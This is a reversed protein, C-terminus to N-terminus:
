AARNPRQRSQNRRRKAPEFAAPNTDAGHAKLFTIPDLWGDTSLGYGVIAFEPSPVYSLVGASVEASEGRQTIEFKRGSAGMQLWAPLDAGGKLVIVEEKEKLEAIELSLLKGETSMLVLKRGVQAMRGERVGLHLHPKYGGNVRTTGIMGIQQGARVTDGVNVLRETALHGYISTAYKGDPLRHELVVLNGWAMTKAPKRKKDGDEKPPGESVRVVGDAVAFVPDGVRYWGVDAGLHLLRVDGVKDVVPLGYGGNPQHRFTRYGDRGITRQVEDFFGDVPPCFQEAAPYSLVYREASEAAVVPRLAFMILASAVCVQRQCARILM